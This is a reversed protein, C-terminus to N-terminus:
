KKRKARLQDSNCKRCKVKGALVRMNSTRIKTKCRRCEFVDNFLRNEAETYKAM